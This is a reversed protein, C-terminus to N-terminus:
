ELLSTLSPADRSGARAIEFRARAALDLPHSGRVLHAHVIRDMGAGVLPAVTRLSARLAAAGTRGGHLVLNRQRYFRRFAVAAHAEVDTL